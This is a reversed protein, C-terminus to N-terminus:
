IDDQDSRTYRVFFSCPQFKCPEEILNKNYWNGQGMLCSFRVGGQWDSLKRDNDGTTFKECYFGLQFSM